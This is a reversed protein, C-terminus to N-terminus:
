ESVSAGPSESDVADGHQPHVIAFAAGPCQVIAPLQAGAELDVWRFVVERQVVVVTRRDQDGAADADCRDFGHRFGQGRPARIELQVVGASRQLVHGEGSVQLLAKRSLAPQVEGLRM